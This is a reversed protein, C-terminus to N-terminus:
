RGQRWNEAAQRGAALGDQVVAEVMPQLRRCNGCFSLWSLTGLGQALSREPCLGAAILLTRCPLLDGNTLRVARLRPYGYLTTLSTQCLLRVCSTQLCTRNRVLGGCSARQELLTVDIGEEALAAAMILGLDGSGVIVAPGQPRFGYLNMMAQMQGAGYVGQPRTGALQLAAPPREYSGTALILQAFAVEVHGCDPGTLVATRGQSLRSVTTRPWYDVNEPFAALLHRIYEPGSLGPGFGKHACQRLVGGPAPQDDVMLVRAGFAAATKAASLGAAGAGVILIDCDTM